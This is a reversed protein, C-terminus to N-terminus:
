HSSLSKGSSKESLREVAACIYEVASLNRSFRIEHAKDMSKIWRIPHANMCCSSLAALDILILDLQNEILSISYYTKHYHIRRPIM